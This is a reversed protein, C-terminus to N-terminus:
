HRVRMEERTRLISRDFDRLLKQALDKPDAKFVRGKMEKAIADAAKVYVADSAELLIIAMEVNMHSRVNKAQELAYALCKEPTSAIDEGDKTYAEPLGDTILYILGRETRSARLIDGARKIANGTNTFGRPQAEWVDVLNMPAVSTSMALIDVRNSPNDRKVARHLALVARKAADIRGHEEMSGSQDFILVVHHSAGREERYILVDDEYLHFDSGRPTRSKARIASGLIDMHSLEYDSLLPERAWNGEGDAWSGTARGRAAGMKRNEEALVIEAFRDVLRETVLWGKEGKRLLGSDELESIVDARAADFPEREAAKQAVEEAERRERELRELADDLAKQRAEKESDLEALQREIESERERVNEEISGEQRALSEEMLQRALDEYDERALLRNWAERIRQATPKARQREKVAQRFRPDSRAWRLDIAVGGRGLIATRGKTRRPAAKKGFLLRFPTLIWSLVTRLAALIALWVRRWLPPRTNQAELALKVLPVEFTARELSSTAELHLLERNHAAEARRAAIEAQEAEFAAMRADRNAAFEGQLRRRLEEARRLLEDRLAKVRRAISSDTQARKAVWDDIANVGGAAIALVLERKEEDSLAVALDVSHCDPLVLRTSTPSTM